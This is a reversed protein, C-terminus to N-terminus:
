PLITTVLYTPQKSIYTDVKPIRPYTLNRSPRDATWKGTHPYKVCGRLHGILKLTTKKSHPCSTVILSTFHASPKITNLWSSLVNSFNHSNTIHITTNARTKYYGPLTAAQIYTLSWKPISPYTLNRSPRDATRKGIHPYSISKFHERKTGHVM